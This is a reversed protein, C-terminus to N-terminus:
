GDRDRDGADAVFRARFAALTDRQRADLREMVELALPEPVGGYFAEAISCAVAAITDSDGGISIATRLTDEFDTAELFCRIAQPVSGQCTADFSYRRKWTAIPRDLVYGHRATIRAAIEEKTTGRRALFTAEAVACAGKIGEPHDHTVAASRAAEELVTELSEFAWAVPSVRMASGNGCSGYPERSGSEAWDVFRSGFGDNPYWNFWRILAEVYPSGQLIAEAVACTLITDDTPVSRPTFLPFDKTAVNDWEYISGVVDGTIAGLM